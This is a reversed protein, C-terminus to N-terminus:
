FTALVLILYLISFEVQQREGPLAAREVWSVAVDLDKLTMGLLAVTYVEVVEMYKDVGLIYRRDCGEPVAADAGVLLYYRQDVYSWNSLFEELFERVGLSSGESM